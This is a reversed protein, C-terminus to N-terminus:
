RIEARLDEISWWNLSGFVINRRFFKAGPLSKNVPGIMAHAHMHAHPLQPDGPTM